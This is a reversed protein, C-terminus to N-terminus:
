RLEAAWRCASRNFRAISTRTISRTSTIIFALLQVPDGQLRHVRPWRSGARAGIPNITAATWANIAPTMRVTSGVPAFTFNTTGSASYQRYSANNYMNCEGPHTQCWAYEDPTVYVLEAYYTAGANM